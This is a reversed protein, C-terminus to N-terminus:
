LVILQSNTLDQAIKLLLPKPNKNINNLMILKSLLESLTKKRALELIQLTQCASM